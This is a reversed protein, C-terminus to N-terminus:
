KRVVSTVPTACNGSPISITIGPSLTSNITSSIVGIAMTFPRRKAIRSPPRVTPEPVTDSIKSYGRAPHSPRRAASMALGRSHQTWPGVVEHHLRPSQVLAGWIADRMPIMTGGPRLLRTRADAISGIHHGFLPLVGRLDSVIVDAGAPLTLDTSLGRVFTIRDAFGNEAALESAVAIASSPEVAYVRKAGFQCAIMAAIGTGTGIELVTCGPSVARRLAEVYCEMRVTDAIMEGYGTLSYTETQRM